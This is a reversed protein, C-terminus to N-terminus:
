LNTNACSLFFNFYEINISNKRIDFVLEFDKGESVKTIKAIEFNSDWYDKIYFALQKVFNEYSLISGSNKADNLRLRPRGDSRRVYLSYRQYGGDLMNLKFYRADEKEFFIYDSSSM